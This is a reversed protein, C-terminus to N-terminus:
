GTGPINLVPCWLTKNATQDLNWIDGNLDYDWDMTSAVNYPGRPVCFFAPFHLAQDAWANNASATGSWLMVALAALIHYRMKFHSGIVLKTAHQGAVVRPFVVRPGADVCCQAVM